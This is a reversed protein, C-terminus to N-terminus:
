KKSLILSCHAQAHLNRWNLDLAKRSEKSLHRYHYYAAVGIMAANDVCYIAEPATFFVHPLDRETHTVLATRLQANASVGGALLITSAAYEKAARLTKTVLVNVTATQFAHAVRDVFDQPLPDKESLLNEKRFEKVLYLVATKIGSFSFHYNGSHLMPEPLTINNPTNSDSFHQARQSVAPGGPYGLGLIRAVKDFAEGVADDQTEGIIAYTNHDSM